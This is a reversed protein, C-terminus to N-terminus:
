EEGEEKGVIAEAQEWTSKSADRRAAMPKGFITHGNGSATRASQHIRRHVM